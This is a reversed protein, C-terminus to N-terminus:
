TCPNQFFEFMLSNVTSSPKMGSDKTNKKTDCVSECECSPAAATVRLFFDGQGLFPRFGSFMSFFICLM